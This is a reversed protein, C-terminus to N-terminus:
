AIQRVQSYGNTFMLPVDNFKTSNVQFSKIELENYIIYHANYQSAISRVDSLSADDFVLSLDKMRQYVDPVGESYGDLVAPRKAYYLVWVSNLDKHALITSATNEKAWRLSQVDEFTIAPTANYSFNFGQILLLVVFFLTIVYKLGQGVPIKKMGEGVLLSFSISLPLIWRRPLLISARTLIFMAFTWLTYINLGLGFIAVPILRFDLRDSYYSDYIPLGWTPPTPRLNVAFMWLVTALVGVLIYSLRSLQKVSDISRLRCLDLLERKFIRCVEFILLFALCLPHTFGLVLAFLSHLRGESLIVLLFFLGLTQPMGAAIFADLIEYQFAFAAIALVNWWARGLIRSFAVVSLGGFIISLLRAIFLPNLGSILALSSLIIHYGPPYNHIRGQASLQDFNIINGSGMILDVVRLHYFVDWGSPFIFRLPLAMFIMFLVVLIVISLTTYKGM